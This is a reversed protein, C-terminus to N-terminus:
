EDIKWDMIWKYIEEPHQHSYREIAAILGACKLLRAKMSDNEKLLDLYGEALEPLLTRAAFIFDGNGGRLVKWPGPTAKAALRLAEEAKEKLSDSM